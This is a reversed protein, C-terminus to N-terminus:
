MLRVPQEDELRMLKAVIGMGALSFKDIDGWEDSPNLFKEQEGMVVRLRYGEEKGAAEPNRESTVYLSPQQKGDEVIAMIFRYDIPDDSEIEGLVTAVFSGIQHRQLPIATKIHPATMTM